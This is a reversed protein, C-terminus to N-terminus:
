AKALDSLAMIAHQLSGHKEKSSCLPEHMPRLHSIAVGAVRLMSTIPGATKARSTDAPIFRSSVLWFCTEQKM